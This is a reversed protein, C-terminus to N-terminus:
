GRRKALIRAAPDRWDRGDGAYCCYTYLADLIEPPAGESAALVGEPTMTVGAKGLEAELFERKSMRDWSMLKSPDVRLGTVRGLVRLREKEKASLRGPIHALIALAVFGGMTVWTSTPVDNVNKGYHLIFPWALALFWLWVRPYALVVSKWDLKVPVGSWRMTTVNGQRESSSSTVYMSSSPLVLGHFKTAIYHGDVNDVEGLMM